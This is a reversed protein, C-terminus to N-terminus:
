CVKEKEITDEKIIEWMLWENGTDYIASFDTLGEEADEETDDVEAWFQKRMEERAERLTDFGQVTFDVGDYAHYYVLYYPHQVVEHIEMVIWDNEDCMNTYTHRDYKPKHEADSLQYDTDIMSNNMTWFADTRSNTIVFWPSTYNESDLACAIYRVFCEM